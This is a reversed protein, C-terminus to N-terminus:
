YYCSQTGFQECEFCRNKCCFRVTERPHVTAETVPYLQHSLSGLDRALLFLKESGKSFSKEQVHLQVIDTIKNYETDFKYKVIERLEGIGINSSNVPFHYYKKYISFVTDIMNREINAEIMKCLIYDVSIYFDNFDNLVVVSIGNILDLLLQETAKYRKIVSKMKTQIGKSNITSMKQKCNYAHFEGTIKQVDLTMESFKQKCLYRAFAMVTNTISSADVHYLLQLAHRTNIEINIEMESTTLEM